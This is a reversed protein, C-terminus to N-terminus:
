MRGWNKRFLLNSHVWGNLIQAETATDTKRAKPLQPTEMSVASLLLMAHVRRTRLFVSALTEYSLIGTYKLVM